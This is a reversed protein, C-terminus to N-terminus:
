KFLNFGKLSMLPDQTPMGEIPPNSMMVMSIENDLQVKEVQPTSYTSKVTSNHQTTKM